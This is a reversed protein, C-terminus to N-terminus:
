QFAFRVPLSYALDVNKGKEDKAPIISTNNIELNENIRNLGVKVLKNLKEDGIVEINDIKGDKTITLMAKSVFNVDKKDKYENELVTIDITSGLAASIKRAFCDTLEQNSSTKDCGPYVAMQDVNKVTYSKTQAFSYIGTILLTPVLVKRLISMIM